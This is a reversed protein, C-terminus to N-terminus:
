NNQPAFSVLFRGDQSKTHLRPELAIMALCSFKFPGKVSQFSHDINLCGHVTEWEQKDLKEHNKRRALTEVVGWRWVPPIENIKGMLFGLLWAPEGGFLFLYNASPDYVTHVVICEQFVLLKFSFIIKLFHVIRGAAVINRYM